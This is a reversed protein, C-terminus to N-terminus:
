VEEGESLVALPTTSKSTTHSGTLKGEEGSPLRCNGHGCTHSARHKQTEGVWGICTSLLTPTYAPVFRWFITDLAGLARVPGKFTKEAESM